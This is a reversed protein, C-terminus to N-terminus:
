PPLPSGMDRAAKFIWDKYRMLPTIGTLGGCGDSLQPGTAWSVVGIVAPHGGFMDFAPAGSDGACTGLGAREGRTTPDFLRIQLTGPQGTVTLTAGRAVGGSRGDGPTAVGYGAVVLRDGPAVPRPPAALPAPVVRAALPRVLKIMAVDATALHALYKEMSFQPHRAVRAVDALRPAGAADQEVLKYDAGPAVCHAATLVLDRAIATGTCFNGRSGVIMVLHRALAPDAAPANGVIAGAPSVSLVFCALACCRSYRM